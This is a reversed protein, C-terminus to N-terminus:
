PVIKFVTGVGHGGTEATGYLNGQADMVLGGVPLGGDPLDGFNHLVTETGSPSVEFVLGIGHTGGYVTTGYLNGQNDRLLRGYAAEGRTATSFAFLTREQNKANLRFITGFGAVGGDLTCGYLNGQNDRILGAYPAGGDKGGSFSYLTTESGDPHIKFITGQGSAGGGIATGILDGAADVLLSGVFPQQGDAGGTFSYLTAFNGSSDIKFVTGCGLGNGCSLDGGYSTTGYLNGTSDLTLGAFPNAGETSGSFHHLVTLTGAPSLKFATGLNYTGGETTTGYLNGASDRVVGGQPASGTPGDFRYLITENGKLDMQFITGNGTALGGYLTTGYLKGGVLLLTDAPEQGDDNSTTFSHLVTFTQADSACVGFCHFPCRLGLAVFIQENSVGLVPAIRTREGSM